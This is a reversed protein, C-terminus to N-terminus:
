RRPFGANFLMHFMIGIKFAFDLTEDDAGGIPRGGDAHDLRAFVAEARIALFVHVDHGARELGFKGTAIPLAVAGAFEEYHGFAHLEFDLGHAVHGVKAM